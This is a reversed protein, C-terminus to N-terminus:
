IITEGRLFKSARNAGFLLTVSILSKLIGILTALPVNSTGDRLGIHYIYLDLVQITGRNAPNFFVLYQDMGNSLINAISLLLLVFYTSMLGPVTIYWMRQFRGAGDVTAAEYLQQDIGSMSAIYIIAGWGLGKWQGWAWMKIWINKNSMLHNTGEEIVGLNILFWNFFGETSFIAFAVSYVLVWSIFNPITTLTQVGRRFKTARIEALFIAFLMPMWSTAIGLGSMAFTNKLVRIIDARTAPNSFLYEFWKFGVFNDANLPFGARYDFFAYRWGWLPLYSFLAALILFPLAMLFLRYKPEIEYIEETSKKPLSWSALGTIAAALIFVIFFVTLGIPYMPELRDPRATIAFHMQAIHLVTSGTLGTLVSALLIKVSLRRMKVSGLSLCFGAGMLLIALFVVLAGLYTLSLAQQTVWGQSLARVFNTRISAYSVACTFLSANSSILGSLRAPNLMPFFALLAAIVIFVRLIIWTIFTFPKDNIM